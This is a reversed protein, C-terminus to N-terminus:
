EESKLTQIIDDIIKDVNLVNEVQDMYDDDDIEEEILCEKMQEKLNKIDSSKDNGFACKNKRNWPNGDKPIYARLYKGSWYIVFFVPYEWDGGALIGVVPIEEISTPGVIKSYITDIEGAEEQTYICDEMDFKVRSLDAAIRSDSLIVHMDEFPEESNAGLSKLHKILKKFIEDYSITTDAKKGM